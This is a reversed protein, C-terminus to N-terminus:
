QRAADRKAQIKKEHRDLLTVLVPCLIATVIVAAAVQVTASPEQAALRPDAAAVALPVAAANGGTSGIAAGVQPHESRILKMTLYGVLGTALCSIVGVAIGPLGAKFLNQVSLGAGLPFAFFPIVLLEGGALFARIGADLNGLLCGIVIPAIAAVILKWSIDAIGSAGLAVLTFFPGDNISLVSLAGIDSADGYQGALSAYLGGNSNSIGAILALPTLGWIGDAGFVAHVAFGIGIGTALEVATLLVGKVLPLGAQKFQIQAGSCFLFIGIFAMAGDKWMPTIFGGWTLVEPFFTNTLVGLLLPIIMLGGPIKKITKLIPLM